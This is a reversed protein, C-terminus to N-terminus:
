GGQYKIFWTMYHLDKDEEGKRAKSRGEPSQKEGGRSMQGNGRIGAAPLPVANSGCPQPQDPLQGLEGGCEGPCLAAGYGCGPVPGGQCGAGAPGNKVQAAM